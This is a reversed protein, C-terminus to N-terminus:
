NNQKKSNRNSINKNRNKSKDKKRKDPYCYLTVHYCQTCYLMKVPPVKFAVFKFLKPAVVDLGALKCGNPNVDDKVDPKVGSPPTNNSAVDENVPWNFTPLANVAVLEFFAQFSSLKTRPNAPEAIFGAPYLAADGPGRM